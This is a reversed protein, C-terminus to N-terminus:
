KLKKGTAWASLFKAIDEGIANTDAKMKEMSDGGAFGMVGVRRQQFTALVTGDFSKVTGEVMVGSKGAGYGVFYRKARSGPDMERFKGEVVIADPPTVDGTLVAAETFPGMTKVKAVFEDALLGPAIPQMKKTEEKKDGETLDADTASFPRMVVIKTAPLKAAFLKIEDLVGGKISQVPSGQALVTVPRSAAICAAAISFVAAFYRM